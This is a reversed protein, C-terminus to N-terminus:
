VEVSLKPLLTVLLKEFKERVLEGTELVEQHSLKNPSIGAALNTVCSIGLCRLGMHNAAIVEPVTSMGVLDAGMTRFARIEAPTEFSPGMLAMYVGDQLEVDAQLAAERALTRLDISYPESMDPFRPGLEDLNAGILPNTGMMNIHDSILVLAGQQYAQNIGGAANTLLLNQVGLLALLRVGFVVEQASHGEYQHIRGALCAVPEGGVDGLVLQGAHGEASPPHFGPIETYPIRIANEIRSAFSGLGSGLVVGARPALDTRARVAALAEGLIAMM